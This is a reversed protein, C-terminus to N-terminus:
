IDLLMEINYRTNRLEQEIQQVSARYLGMIIVDAKEDDPVNERSCLESWDRIAQLMWDESFEDTGEMLTELYQEAIEEEIDPYDTEEFDYTM